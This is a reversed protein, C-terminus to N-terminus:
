TCGAIFVDDPALGFIGQPDVGIAEMVFDARKPATTIDNEDRAACGLFLFM